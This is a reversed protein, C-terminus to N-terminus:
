PFSVSVTTSQMQQNDIATLSYTVSGNLTRNHDIYQLVSADVKQIFEGNRFILYGVVNPDTSANWTLTNYYENFVGFNQASQTVSLNTPPLLLTKSGISAVIINNTGNNHMWIAAAHVVNGSLSAAIKPYANESGTSITIPVSWFNNLFGNADSEVEQILLSTGNYFMFISLVDGFSTASLDAMCAYLNSNLLDVPATWLGNVPKVASEINFTQDDFSINWLAIANGISDYAVRATLTSPNRIGPQSLSAVQSWNGTSSPRSASKVVVNTSSVGVNDYAYWIATANANADVAVYPQAANHDTESIVQATSWSGAILKTSTFVVNTGNSVGQWVLVARRNSGIGGIAITPTASSSSSITVRNQWNMGSLKTSTELNGSRVWAAVVDGAADVCITPSSAGSTSLSTSSSWNGNIPKSAAKVVGNEVWVATANGNSDSVLCPSSAGTASITVSPTWSGSIPKFSSKVLNGEVWVAIADGNADIAIHPDSANVLNGSLITPPSTWNVNGCHLHTFLLFTFLTSLLKKM